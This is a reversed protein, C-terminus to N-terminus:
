RKSNGKGESKRGGCSTAIKQEFDNRKGNQGTMQVTASPKAKCLNKSNQILGRKGGKLELVFKSVPADPVETFRTRVRSVERGTRVSDIFGVLTVHIQGNLDAVLDPLKREGGNSRFYVPGTLPKDLLPTYATATGLISAKPCDGANFQVRTCPNNIHRNDIFESSPLIVTTKAINAQGPPAKLTATLAPNGTRKTKGKLQLALTPDFGLGGCGEVQFRDSPTAAKGQISTLLSTVKMPECSTPNITFDNRSVDVRVDRYSIPVGDLIQPLPDSKATVQTTTPDVYLGNRVTVTGLNFPGAEAPVKVVLSYPAGKYPGALYVATPARGPQPVYVPTPGAGAGVTSTGVQSGSPCDGSVAQSDSCLPVGALKALVGSPLTAEITSLNQQGSPETVRLVFPSFGGAVPSTAGSAISPEFESADACGEGITFSSEVDVPQNPRAWPTLAARTTYTGCSSPTVLPSRPGGIVGVHLTEFPLQPNDDFTISLQGTTPDPVVKGELKVRVGSGEAELFLRFMKGESAALASQAIPTGLFLAGKLPLGLLPSRISVEGIRSADPCRDIEPSGIGFAADDCGALGNASSPNIAVGRPLTMEVKKLDSTAFGNPEDTQPLALDIGFGAPSGARSGEPAVTMRPAFPLASCGVSAPQAATAELVYEPLQWSTVKLNVQGAGCSTPTRLFARPNATSPIPVGGQISSGPAYRNVDHSSDAPVGWLRIKVGFVQSVTNIGTVRATVGYDGGTRVGIDVHAVPAIVIFGFQAPLGPPPVMNYLPVSQVQRGNITTDIEAIGVQSDTPCTPTGTVEIQEPLCQPMRAANGVLGPPLEVVSSRLNGEPVENPARRTALEFNFATEYQWPARGAQTFATGDENQSGATFHEIVLGPAAMASSATTALVVLACCLGFAVRLM